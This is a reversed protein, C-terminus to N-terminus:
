DTQTHCARCQADGYGTPSLCTEGNAYHHSCRRKHDSIAQQAKLLNQHLVDQERLWEEVSLKEPGLDANFRKRFAEAIKAKDGSDMAAAVAADKFPSFPRDSM